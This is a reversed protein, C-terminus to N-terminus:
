VSDDFMSYFDRSLYEFNYASCLGAMYKKLYNIAIANEENGELSLIGLKYNIEFVTALEDKSLTYPREVM